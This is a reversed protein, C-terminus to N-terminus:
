RATLHARAVAHGAVVAARPDDRWSASLFGAAFADGAGTSDVPGDIPDVAVVVEAGDVGFCRTPRTGQKVVTVAAAMPEGIELLEAEDANAFVVDPRVRELLARVEEVGVERILATSSLDVSIAIRREAAWGLVTGATVATSGGWLSYMPVHLVDVDDLWFEAPEDLEACAGRDTLMTREGAADVLVAITGTRGGRRVCSVDVGAAAIEDILAAGVADAGVQGIFRARAGHRAAARAVNAASGGARRTIVADTDSALNLPDDVRIVVDDILDGLTALVTRDEPGRAATERM